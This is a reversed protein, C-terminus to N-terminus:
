YASHRVRFTVAQRYAHLSALYRHTCVPCSKFRHTASILTNISSLTFTHSYLTLISTMEWKGHRENKFMDFILWFFGSKKIILYVALMPRVCLIARRTAATWTAWVNRSLQRICNPKKLFSFKGFCAHVYMEVMYLTTQHLALLLEYRYCYSHYRYRYLYLLEIVRVLLPHSSHSSNWCFLLLLANSCCCRVLTTQFCTGHALGPAVEQGHEDAAHRAPNWEATVFETVLTSKHLGALLPVLTLRVSWLYNSNM